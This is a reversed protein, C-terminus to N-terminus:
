MMGRGCGGPACGPKGCGFSLSEGSPKGGGAVHASVVSLLRQIQESGCDPCVPQESGRVLIEVDHDCKPCHFEYLPM